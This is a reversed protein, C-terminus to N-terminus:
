ACKKELSLAEELKLGSRIAKLAVSLAKLATTHPPLEWFFWVGRKGTIRMLIQEEDREVVVAYSRYLLRQAPIRAQYRLYRRSSM